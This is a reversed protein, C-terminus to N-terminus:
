LSEEKAMAKEILERLSKARVQLQTPRAMISGVANGALNDVPLNPEKPYLGYTMQLGDNVQIIRLFSIRGSDIRNLFDTIEYSSLARRNKAM